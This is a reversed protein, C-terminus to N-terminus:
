AVTVANYLPIYLTTENILVKLSSDCTATQNPTGRTTGVPAQDYATEDFHFLCAWGSSSTEFSAWAHPVSCGTTSFITYEEANAHRNVPDIQNDLWIAAAKSGSAMTANVEAYVKAWVGYMNGALKAGATHLGAIFEAAKVNTPGDGATTRVEALGAIPIIGKSKATMLCQFLGRDYSSGDDDTTGYFRLMGSQHEDTNSVPDAYTGARLFCPGGSGTHDITVDSFDIVDDTFTGSFSQTNTFTNAKDLLPAAYYIMDACKDFIHSVGQKIYENRAYSLRTTTATLGM